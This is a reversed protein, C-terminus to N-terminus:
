TSKKVNRLLVAALAFCASCLLFLATYGQTTYHYVIEGDRMEHHVGFVALLVGALPMSISQPLTMAIHWVAMDKAADTKSPLVDTGLAWDVSVYAGYGIGFLIGVTLVQPLTRCFALAVAMVAIIANSFYVVKKRGIRDSIVGGFYGSVSAGVLICALLIPTQAKADPLRIVDELYYQIFPQVGYFGLMVLARTLWVWAFDPYERPDIWLSKFYAGWSIPKPKAALPTEKIGLLTIATVGVLVAALVVYQVMDPSNHLVKGVIIAGSLTGVQTMVAMYGSAVGRQDPPVLDPIVGSYAASAINNGLQLVMYSMGYFYINKAEFALLMLLFAAVNILVGTAIYPRRRGFRSACRDSLAGAFLPVIVAIIAALGTVLGLTKAKTDPAMVEVESPLMLTLLAGWVFNTAFWYSSIALHQWPSLRKGEYPSVVVPLANADESM